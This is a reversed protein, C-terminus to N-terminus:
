RAVPPPTPSAKNVLVDGAEDVRAEYWPLPKKPPGKTVNGQADFRGGHCPCVLDGEKGLGVTCGWHTCRTSIVHVSDQRRLVAMQVKLKKGRAHTAKEVFTMQGLPFGDAKGLNLWEGGEPGEGARAGRNWVLALVGTAAAQKLFVRRTIPDM